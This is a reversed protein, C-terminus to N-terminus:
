WWAAPHSGLPMSPQDWHAPTVSMHASHRVANLRGFGSRTEELRDVVDGFQLDPRDFGNAVRGLSRLWNGTQALSVEVLWSGGEIARRALADMAGLALLYGSAHDLAQAPLPQPHLAHAAAAEDDNFGGATQVLSDFGRREAWPGTEGYASLSCYVLGPRAALLADPGFGLASLGGPRYGQIFVDCRPVLAMLAAAGALTNLDAFCTRKGRGTDIVLPEVSPLAPSSVHLVQAGHAALTRGAVPGAIIRTLDLVRVDSLPRASPKWPNVPGPGIRRIRMPMGGELAQGQPESLWQRRTRLAAVVLGRAACVAEFEVAKWHLLAAAVAAPEGACQLIQLVGARHHPFNTHLRVYGDACPYLGAIADWLEAAPERDIRLYRESRFEIAADRLGVSVTQARGTRARWIQAAALGTAAISAQAAADVAFSSPLIPGMGTLAVDALAGPEFATSAWLAELAEQGSLEPADIM